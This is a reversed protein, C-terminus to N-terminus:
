ARIRQCGSGCIWRITEPQGCASSVGRASARPKPRSRPMSSTTAAKMSSSKGACRCITPQHPDGVRREIGGADGLEGGLTIPEVRGAIIGQLRPGVHGRVPQRDGVPPHPEAKGFIVPAGLTQRRMQEAEPKAGVIDDCDLQRVAALERDREVRRHEGPDREALKVGIEASTLDLEDQIEDLCRRQDQGPFKAAEIMKLHQGPQAGFQGAEFMHQHDAVRDRQGIEVQAGQEVRGLTRFEVAVRQAAPPWSCVIQAADGEGRARGAVGLRHEVEVVRRIARRTEDVFGMADPWVAHEQRKQRDPQIPAEEVHELPYEGAARHHQLLHEIGLSRESQDLALPHRMEAARRRMEDRQEASGIQLTEIQRRQLHDRGTARGTWGLDDTLRPRAEGPTEQLKVAHDFAAELRM